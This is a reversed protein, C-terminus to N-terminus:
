RAEMLYLTRGSVPSTRVDLTEFRAGFASEFGERHYGDFVDARSALMQLVMPDDKPVFEIILRRAIAAFFRAASSLPVNNGICVHHILALAMVADAPGRAVFSDRETHAWGLGPSPNALDIWLPLIDVGSDRWKRYCAEVCSLDQDSAITVAGKERALESFLGTNAGLDWVTEPRIRDLYESVMAQKQTTAESSHPGGEYYSEWVSVPKPARLKEVTSKLSDLIGLLGRAGLKKEPAPSEGAGQKAARAEVRAHMHIHLGLGLAFRSRWPLARAALGLPVGDIHSRLLGGFRADVLSMLALPAVFHRCFQGYACWPGGEVHPEFSLTDIFVPRAGRFQINYASADKLSMGHRMACHQVRLTLLAADRLQSLCWEYPYSVFPIREPRLVACADDTRRLDLAAEEHPILLGDKTLAEYLGSTMLQRYQTEYVHNVQRYLVGDDDFLFGSPDRFSGRVERSSTM